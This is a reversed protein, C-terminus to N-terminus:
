AIDRLADSPDRPVSPLATVACLAALLLIVGALLVLTRVPDVVFALDSFGAAFLLRLVILGIALGAVAGTAAVVAPEAAVTLAVTSRRFGVARLVALYPRRERASRLLLAVVAILAVGLGLLLIVAFTDTFTRNAATVDAAVEDVTRADLGATRGADDLAAALQAAPVDQAGRALLFTPGPSAALDLFESEAIFVGGLLFTDLVAIMEYERPGSGLDLVVDDGLKSGPPRSYRDVIAKDGDLQAAQFAEAASAYEPLSEALGFGQATALDDSIGILRVPYRVRLIEADDEDGRAVGFRDEPVTTSELAVAATLGEVGSGRWDGLQGVSQGIVDFGGSQRTVDIATASGLVQLAGAMFLVIGFTALLRGTRGSAAEAYSGATRLAAQVRGRPAYTRILRMVGRFRTALLVTAGVISVVGAVVLVGFGTEYGQSFDALAAAGATAWLLSLGAAVTDVRERDPRTRRLRLWWAAALLTLGLYRLADSADGGSLGMGLLLAGLVAVIVPRRTSLPREPLDVLPGRLLLDVDVAALTRGASRGALVAALLVILAGLVLAGPDAAAELAVQERGRGANLAAFHDALVGAVGNAVPLALLVGIGCALLAYLVSEATVLRVINRAPSGLARLVAIERSRDQALATLMQIAAVVAAAVVLLALTFLISSFQGGEDDAIVLADELPKSATLDLPRLQPQIARVIADNGAEGPEAATLHLHTVRGDLDTLQQLVDRRLLVNPTRQLDALGRDAVVGAVELSAPVTAPERRLDTENRPVDEIVEPVAILVNISDGTRAGLRRAARENLLVQDAGLRLVDSQGSVAHLPPYAQDEAGVGLVRADDDRRGNREVMAPLVIRPAWRAATDGAEVGVSRALGEEFVANDASTVQVDVDGWQARADAVFLRELSNGAVLAAVVGVTMVVLTSVVLIARGPNRLSGRLWATTAGRRPRGALRRAM